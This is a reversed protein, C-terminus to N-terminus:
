GEVIFANYGDAKLKAVMKDANDKVSFAGVQVRYIVKETNVPSSEIFKIGLHNLIGKVYAEDIKDRFAHDKLKAIDEKNTHFGTEILVAPMTTDRIVAFMSGDKIGRDVFGLSKSEAHIREALQRSEGTNKYTYIEWGKADNWGTGFANSHLSILLDGNTANIKKILESLEVSPNEHSYDVILPECPYESLMKKMRNAIDLNFEFEKYTGDPSQKGKVLESHGPDLVIKPLKKKLKLGVASPINRGQTFYSKGREYFATSGGGDLNIAWLCGQKQLALALETLNHKDKKTTAIYLNSKDMGVATRNTRATAFANPLGKMDMSIQGNILLTPAGGIFDVKKGKSNATTSWYASIGEWPNGFAIGKDSYNGGRNFVGGVIMDTINWYYYPDTKPNGNSFLAGNIAIDWGKMEAHDKLSLKANKDQLSVGASEIDGFPIKRITIM